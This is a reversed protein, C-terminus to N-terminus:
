EAARWTADPDYADIRPALDATREGLNKEYVKGQQNVVFTMVGSNGWEVPYALMGFGAVMHDNVVYDFKGGPADRGQREMIRFIYGHFPTCRKPEDPKRQKSRYYGEEQARAVLPGFPSQEEGPATEWSLGDKTGPTSRLRRAYEMVGNGARDKAAYERQAEVYARCVEIASLENRGIRRNLIEEKGAATDFVWQGNTAVLPIPFPWHKEGLHLVVTHNEQTALGTYERLRQAFGRLQNARQIADPNAIENLVPGFLQRLMNTDSAQVAERLAAVAQDPSAFGTQPDGGAAPVSGIGAMACALTAALQTLVARIRSRTHM